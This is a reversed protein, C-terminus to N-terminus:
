SRTPAQRGRRPKVIVGQPYYDRVWDHDYLARVKKNPLRIVIGYTRAGESRVLTAFPKIVIDFGNLRAVDFEGLEIDYEALVTRNIFSGYFFVSVLREAM